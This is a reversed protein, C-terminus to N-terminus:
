VAPTGSSASIRPLARPKPSVPSTVPRQQVFGCQFLTSLNDLFQEAAVGYRDIWDRLRYDATVPTGLECLFKGLWHGAALEIRACVAGEAILLYRERGEKHLSTLVESGEPLRVRDDLSWCPQLLPPANMAIDVSPWDSAQVVDLPTRSRPLGGAFPSECRELQREFIAIVMCQRLQQALRVHNPARTVVRTILAGIKDRDFAFSPSEMYKERFQEAVRTIIGHEILDVSRTDNTEFFAVKPRDDAYDPLFHRMADRVIEKRWFLEAQLSEPVSALLEILRHDLFPVRAELSHWSSTRDEHWLNHHQLQRVMLRMMQHYTGVAPRGPNQPLDILQGLDFPIEQDTAFDLRVSPEVEARLYDAWCRHATNIRQSYGGAFEDAGQGTLLVKLDPYVHRAVRNLEGKLLWELDFRPSDMMWVLEELRALDFQLDDLVTHYDFLVPHWTLALRQALDGAAKVDGVLYTTRKVATFCPIQRGSRRVITALLSSDLGGSLHLGVPVDSQLHELTVCQLLDRYRERYAAANRGYPATGLYDEIQWYRGSQSAGDASLALYEGGPLFDIGRVYTSRPSQMVLNRDLLSWDLARPCQPHALMAKLESGFLLGGAVRCTYLPKIGLRDRALFLRRAAADWIATAFMGNLRRLAGVGWEAYGHLVAECDSRSNFAHRTELERRLEAQNYIEGNVVCALNRAQNVFPQGGGHVDVISLRRFVLALTGDDFYSVSDPGRHVIERGMRELLRRREESRSDPHGFTLFGAFGCM